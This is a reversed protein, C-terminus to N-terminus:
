RTSARLMSNWRTTPQRPPVRLSHVVLVDLDHGVSSQGPIGNPASQQNQQGQQGRMRQGQQGSQGPAGPPQAGGGRQGGPGFGGPGGRGSTDTPAAIGNPTAAAAAVAGVSGLGIAVAAVIATRKASWRPPYTPTPSDAVAPSLGGSPGARRGRQPRRIRPGLRGTWRPLPLAPPPRAPRSPGPRRRARAPRSRRGAPTPRSRPSRAAPVVRSGEDVPGAGPGQGAYRAPGLQPSGTGATDGGQSMRPHNVSFVCAVCM